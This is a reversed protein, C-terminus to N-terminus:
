AVPNLGIQVTLPKLPASRGAAGPANQRLSYIERAADRNEPSLQLPKLDGNPLRLTTDGSASIQLTVPGSAGSQNLAQALEVSRSLRNTLTSVREATAAPSPASARDILTSFPVAPASAATRAEAPRSNGTIAHLVNGAVSAAANILIPHM